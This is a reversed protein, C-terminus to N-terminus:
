EVSSVSALMLVLSLVHLALDFRVGAGVEGGFEIEVGVLAITVHLLKGNSLQVVGRSDDLTGFSGAVDHRTLPRDEAVIAGTFSLSDSYAM